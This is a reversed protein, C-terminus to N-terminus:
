APLCLVDDYADEWADRDHGCSLGICQMMAIFLICASQLNNNSMCHLWQHIPHKFLHMSTGRGRKGSNLTTAQKYATCKVVNKFVILISVHM